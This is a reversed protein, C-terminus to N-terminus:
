GRVELLAGNKVRGKEKRVLDVIVADISDPEIAFTTVFDEFVKKQLASVTELLTINPSYNMTVHIKIKPVNEFNLEVQHCKYIDFISYCSRKVVETFVDEHIQITGKHFNPQVITTEGIFEKQHLLIKRGRQIIKKFLSQEVEEYPLPIVHKVQTKRNFLAMKIEKQSRIDDVTYYYDIKGLQLRDVIKEVMKKSTGIVLINSVVLLKIAEQVEHLHNDDFFVARKVASIYNKEYKASFGAAKRGQHILLGDDIITSIGKSHAFSLASTSKGTGSPGSLTYIKM